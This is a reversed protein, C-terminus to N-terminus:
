FISRRLDPYSTGISDLRSLISFIDYSDMAAEICRWVIAMTARPQDTFTDPQEPSAATGSTAKMHRRVVHFLLPRTLVIIANHYHLFVSLSASHQSPSDQLPRPSTQCDAPCQALWKDLDGLISFVRSFIEQGGLPQLGYLEANSFEAFIARRITSACSVEASPATSRRCKPMNGFSTDGVSTETM